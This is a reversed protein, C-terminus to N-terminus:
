SKTAVHACSNCRYLFPSLSLFPSRPASRPPPLFNQTDYLSRPASVLLAPRTPPASVSLGSSSLCGRIEPSVDPWLLKPDLFVRGRGAAGKSPFGPRPQGAPSRLQCGWPPSSRPLHPDAGPQPDSVAPGPPVCRGHCRPPPQPTARSRLPAQSLHFASLSHATSRCPASVPRSASLFRAPPRICPRSRAPGARGEGGRWGAPARDTRPM